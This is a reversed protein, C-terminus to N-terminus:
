KEMDGNLLRINLKKISTSPEIQLENKLFECYDLYYKELSAKGGIIYHLRLANERVEEDYPEYRIIIEIVRLIKLPEANIAKYYAVLRKALSVFYRHYTEKVEYCWDSSFEELIPKYKSIINEYSELNEKDIKTYKFVMDELMFADVEVDTENICLKYGSGTSKISIDINNERLTKNTRSITSRLNIDAKDQDKDTWINEILQWKSINVDAKQLLMYAFLEASKLTMWRVTKNSEGYYISTIGLLSVRIKKSTSNLKYCLDAERRKKVRELSRELEEPMIPKLLYDLANVKFAEVAYQNYATTFVIEGDYGNAFAKEALELGSMEPMEIDLFLVDPKFTNINEFAEKAKICGRVDINAKKLLRCIHENTLFEDEVVIAKIM